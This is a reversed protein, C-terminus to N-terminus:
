THKYLMFPKEAMFNKQRKWPFRFFFNQRLPLVGVQREGSQWLGSEEVMKEILSGYGTTPSNVFVHSVAGVLRGDQIIPSGSMGQIIGGTTQLLRQDTVRIVLGKGDSRNLLVREIEITFREIQEGDVVTLIEAPGERVQSALAIPLPEQYLTNTVKGSMRGFIGVSTNRLITGNFRASEEEQFIGIKEGPMGQRGPQIGKIWAPIVRGEAVDIRQNTDADNIVHGLAGYLGSAPDYFTLTGVGAARDRVFLGVRFRKTEGCRVPTVQGRLTEGHRVYEIDVLGGKKGAEDIVRALEADSHVWQGGVKQIVDGVALGSAKAPYQKQGQEDIIPAQGVVIVGQAHLMVGISQGGPLLRVPPVVDVTMQKVPLFGLWRLTVQYRGTQEMTSAAIGDSADGNTVPSTGGPHVRHMEMTVHRLLREPFKRQWQESADVTTRFQSPTTWLSLAEESLSLGIVSLVVIWAIVHRLRIKGM